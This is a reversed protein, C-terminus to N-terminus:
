LCPTRTHTVSEVPTWGSSSCYVSCCCTQLFYPAAMCLHYVRGGRGGGVWARVFTMFRNADVDSDAEEDDDVM